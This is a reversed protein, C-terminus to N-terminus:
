GVIIEALVFLAYLALLFMAEKKTIKKETRVCFFFTIAAIVLFLRGIAFPAISFLSLDPIKIPHIIAVIGLVLTAPVIVSGMLNGLIMWTRGQRASAIAFSIEPLANGIAIVLIGILVSSVGFYEQFAMASELIGYAGILLVVIGLIVKGLDRLFIKFEKIPPVGSDEKKYVKSFREKKSFLWYIYVIFLSILVLGDGAGLVGDLILFLPLLAAIITFISSTQVMKSNASLGNAILAALAVAVTLDIVNGGIIDGFSFEPIGNIASVIGVFLNPIAGALAVTFFAVVFEKWELFRAM